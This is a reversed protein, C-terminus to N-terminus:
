VEPMSSKAASHSSSSLHVAALTFMWALTCSYRIACLYAGEPVYSSILLSVSKRFPINLEVILVAIVFVIYAAWPCSHCGKRIAYRELGPDVQLEAVPVRHTSVRCM